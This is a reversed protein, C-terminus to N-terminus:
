IQLYFPLTGTQFIGATDLQHVAPFNLRAPSVSPWYFHGTILLANM